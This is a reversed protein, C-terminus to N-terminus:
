AVYSFKHQVQYGVGGMISILFSTDNIGNVGDNTDPNEIGVKANVEKM